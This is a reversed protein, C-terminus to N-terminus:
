EAPGTLWYSALLPTAALEAETHPVRLWRGVSYRLTADIHHPSAPDDSQSHTLLTYPQVGADSFAVVQLYTNGIREGDIAYGGQEIRQSPCAITFYGHQQCGGYFPIKLEARPVYMVQDRRADLAYGSQQVRLVGAALAQIVRPDPRLGRPTQLPQEPDFVTVFLEEPPILLLRKWWEDWLHAGRASRRGSNDWRALQKCAPQVSIRRPPDFREGTLPDLTLAVEPSSCALELAERKFREASLSRSDLAMRQVAAADTRPGGHGDNGALRAQAMAHGLQTRLSQPGREPGVIRAYGTLPEAPNSLWHSDNMNAVYDRRLLGPLQSPGLSGPQVSDPDSGWECARRSGDLFPVGPAVQAFTQGLPTTCAAALRDPVNPVAGIDAYWVRADGRGAAVTNTWPVGAEEKQIRIFDDLSGAGGFRLFTNLLRYNSANIDRIAFAKEHSWAMQPSFGSLDVLPGFHSRWLTRTVSGAGTRVSLTVPTMPLVQGEYRYATPSGPSLKLEYLGFRSATSTTHSWAIHPNYGILIVPMGLITIGATDLTGPLSLHAQYFRDPGRWYWHPNGLLLGHASGTAEGGFGIANSGTGAAGGVKLARPAVAATSAPGGPQLAAGTAPPQASAIERAFVSYGGALGLTYVRRWVDMEHIERVWPRGRCLRHALSSPGPRGVRHGTAIERVLRNYGATWGRVLRRLPEPHQDRYHSVSTEDAVHRFFFDLELNPLQGFTSDSAPRAEAGFHLSREGRLSVFLEALTCLNDEAQVYGFGYGLSAHDGAKLHPIGDASRRVLVRLAPAPAARPVVAPQDPGSGASAPAAPASAAGLVACGLTLAIPRAFARM